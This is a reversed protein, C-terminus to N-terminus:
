FTTSYGALARTSGDAVDKMLGIRFNSRATGRMFGATLQLRREESALNATTSGLTVAQAVPDYGSGFTLRARGNEITLPQAVGLSLLGGLAPGSAQVGLRTGVMSSAGTVISTPDIRLRTVGVSGYGELRWGGILSFGGHLEVMGTRAGRGLALPGTSAMGMVSGTEDIWSARVTTGGTAFSATVAQARSGGVDGGAFSVGVRGMTTAHDVSVSNGAQPAYALIGDAFPALGM